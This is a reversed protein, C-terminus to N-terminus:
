LDIGPLRDQRYTAIARWRDLDEGAFSLDAVCSGEGEQLAALLQGSPSVVCSWGLSQFGAEQGVRNAMALCCGNELARTVALAQTTRGSWGWVTSQYADAIWDTSNIVLDAGSDVLRRVFGPFILDYCISLGIRGLATDVVVTETGAAYASREAAFLHMKRYLSLLAGDPGFLAQADFFKGGESLIVGVALHLRNAGAIDALQRMCPGDVPTALEAIKDGVFYGTTACEPFVVLEAGLQRAQEAFARIKALNPEIAGLMCDMQVVMVRGGRPVQAL